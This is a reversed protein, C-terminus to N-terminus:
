LPSFGGSGSFFTSFPKSIPSTIFPPESTTGWGIWAWHVVSLGGYAVNTTGQVYSLRLCCLHSQM